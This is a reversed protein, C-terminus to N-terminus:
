RYKQLFQNYQLIAEDHTFQPYKGGPLSVWARNGTSFFRDADGERLPQLARKQDLYATAALKHDEPNSFDMPGLKQQMETWPALQM